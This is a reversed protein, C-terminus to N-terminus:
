TSLTTPADDFFTTKKYEIITEARKEMMKVRYEIAALLAKSSDLQRADNHLSRFEEKWESIKENHGRIVNETTVMTLAMLDFKYKTITKSCQSALSARKDKNLVPIALLKQIYSMSRDISKELSSPLRQLSACKRLIEQQEKLQLIKATAEWIM